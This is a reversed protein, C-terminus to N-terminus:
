SLETCFCSNELSLCGRLGSLLFPDELPMEEPPTRALEAGTQGGYIQLLLACEERELALACDLPTLWFFTPRHDANMCTFSHFRKRDLGNPGMGLDLLTWLTACADSEVCLELASKKDDAGELFLEPWRPYLLEALEPCDYRCIQQVLRRLGGTGLIETRDSLRDIESLWWNGAGEGMTRRLWRALTRHEKGRPDEPSWTYRRNETREFSM